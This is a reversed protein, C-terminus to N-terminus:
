NGVYTATFGVLLLYKNLSAASLGETSAASIYVALHSFKVKVPHYSANATQWLAM